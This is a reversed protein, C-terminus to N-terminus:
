RAVEVRRRRIRRRGFPVPVINRRRGALPARRTFGDSLRTPTM